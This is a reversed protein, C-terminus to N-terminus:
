EKKWISCFTNKGQINTLGRNEIVQHIKQIDVNRHMPMEITYGSLDVLLIFLGGPNIHTCLIEATGEPDILHEFVADSFIIDFNEKLVLSTPSSYFMRIPLKYKEFRWKAFEFVQGPIDLYTVDKGTEQAIECTLGLGGGFDLFKKGPHVKILPLIAPHIANLKQTVAEKQFGCSLLDFIYNQSEKYFVEAKEKYGRPIADWDAKNLEKFINIRRMIEELPMGSFESYDKIVSFEM